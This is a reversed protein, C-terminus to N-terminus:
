PQHHWAPVQSSRRLQLKIPFTKKKNKNAEIAEPREMEDMQGEQYGPMRIDNMGDMSIEVHHLVDPENKGGSPNNVTAIAM